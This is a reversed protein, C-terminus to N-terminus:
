TSKTFVFWFWAEPAAVAPFEAAGAPIGEMLPGVPFILLESLIQTSPQPM